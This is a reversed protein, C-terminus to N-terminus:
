TADIVETEGTVKVKLNGRTQTERDYEYIYTSGCESCIWFEENWPYNAPCLECESNCRECNM